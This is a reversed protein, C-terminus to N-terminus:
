QQDILLKWKFPATKAYKLRSIMEAHDCWAPHLLGDFRHKQM